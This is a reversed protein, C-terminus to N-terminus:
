GTRARESRLATLLLALLAVLVGTGLANRAREPSEPSGGSFASWMTRLHGDPLAPIPAAPDGVDLEISGDDMTMAHMPVGTALVRGDARVEGLAFVAVHSRVPGVLSTGIGSRGHHWRDFGVGWWTGFRGLPDDIMPETARIDYRTGDPHTISATLDVRDHPPLPTVRPNANEAVLRLTGSAAVMEGRYYAGREVMADRDATVVAVDSGPGAQSWAISGLAVLGVVAIVSALWQRPSLAVRTWGRESRWASALLFTAVSVVLTIPLAVLFEDRYSLWHVTAPPPDEALLRLNTDPLGVPGLFHSYTALVLSLTVGGGVAAARDRGAAAWWALTFPVAILLRVVFFTVGPFTGVAAAELLGAVVVIAAGVALARGADSAVSGATDDGTEAVVARRRWLWLAGLYGLYIVGFHVPLGTVWTHELDLWEPHSPLGIPSLSWYYVTLVLTHVATIAAGRAASAGLWATGLGFVTAILFTKTIWYTWYPDNEWLLAHGVAADALIAFLAVAGTFKALDGVTQFRDVGPGTAPQTVSITDGGTEEITVTM